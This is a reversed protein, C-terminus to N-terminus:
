QTLSSYLIHGHNMLILGINKRNACLKYARELLDCLPYGHANMFEFVIFGCQKIQKRASYALNKIGVFSEPSKIEFPINDILFDPTKVKIPTHVEPIRIVRQPHYTAIISGLAITESVSLNPKGYVFKSTDTNFYSDMLIKHPHLVIDTKIM